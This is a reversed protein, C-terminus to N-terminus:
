TSKSVLEYNIHAVHYMSFRTLYGPDNLFFFVLIELGYNSMRSFVGTQDSVEGDSPHIMAVLTVVSALMREICDNYVMYHAGLKSKLLTDAALWNIKGFPQDSGLFQLVANKFIIEEAQIDLMCHQILIKREFAVDFTVAKQLQRSLHAFAAGARQTSLPTM